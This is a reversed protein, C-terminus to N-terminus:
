DSNTKMTCLTANVRLIFKMTGWVLAIYEPHHQSLVDLVNGYYLLRESVKGLWQHIVGRGATCVEYEHKADELVALVDELSAHQTLIAQISQATPHNHLLFDRAQVYAKEM